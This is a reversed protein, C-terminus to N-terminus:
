LLNSIRPLFLVQSHRQLQRNNTSDTCPVGVFFSSGKKLVNQIILPSSSSKRSRGLRCEKQGQTFHTNRSPLCFLHVTTFSPLLKTKYLYLDHLTNSSFIGRELNTSSMLCYKTVSITSFVYTFLAILFLVKM